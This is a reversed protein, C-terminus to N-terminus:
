RSRASPRISPSRLWRRATTIPSTPSARAPRSLGTIILRTGAAARRFSDLRRPRAYDVVEEFTAPEESPGVYREGDRLVQAVHCGLLAAAAEHLLSDLRM